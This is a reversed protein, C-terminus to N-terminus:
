KFDAQIILTSGGETLSFDRPQAREYFGVNGAYGYFEVGADQPMELLLKVLDGVTFKDSM